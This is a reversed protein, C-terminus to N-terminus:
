RSCPSCARNCALTVRALSVLTESVRVRQVATVHQSESRPGAPGWRWGWCRSGEDRREERGGKRGQVGRWPESTSVKRLRPLQPEWGAEGDQGMNQTQPRLM